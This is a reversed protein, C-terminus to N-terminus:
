HSLRVLTWLNKTKIVVNFNNAEENKKQCLPDTKLGPNKKILSFMNRYKFSKGNNM